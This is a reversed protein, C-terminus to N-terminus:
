KHTQRNNRNMSKESGRTETEEMQLVTEEGIKSIKMELKNLRKNTDKRLEGKEGRWNFIKKPWRNGNMKEM